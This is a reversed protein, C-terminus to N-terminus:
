KSEDTLNGQIVIDAAAGSNMIAGVHNTRVTNDRVTGGVGEAVLIGYQTNSLCENQEAKPKFGAGYLTIGNGASGKIKNGTISISIGNSGTAMIGDLKCDQITNNHFESGAAPMSIQIGSQECGSINCDSVKAMAGEQIAIGLLNGKISVQMATLSVGEGAAAIGAEANAECLTGGLVSASAADKISIGSLKNEALVCKSFSPFTGTHRVEVGNEGNKRCETGEMAGSAGREFVVGNLANNRITCQLVQAKSPGTIELGNGLGAQITCNDLTLSSSMLHVVPASDQNGVETGTHAFVIGSITGGKCNSATLVAGSSGDTQIIVKGPVAARLTIGSKFKLQEEYTGEPITITDGEKAADIQAQLTTAKAPPTPPVPEVPPPTPPMPGAVPGSPGPTPTPPAPDPDSGKQTPGPPAPPPPTPTAPTSPNVTVEKGVLRKLYPTNEWAWWGGGALVAVTLVSAILIGSGGSKGEQPAAPMPPPMPTVSSGMRINGAGIKKSPLEMETLGAGHRVYTQTPGAHHPHHASSPNYSTPHDNPAGASGPVAPMPPIDPQTLPALGLRQRIAQASAPRNEAEKELCALITQEWEVPIPEANELGFEVRRDTLSTVPDNQLQSIINGSYFPPKGTLLEYVTSGFAYLDDTVHPKKGDAQQPSMYALTGTSNGMGMTARNLADSISRAIGFDTVRLNGERDIMLNAPKLDRHIVKAFRHAYDLAELFQVVWMGLQRAEFVKNPQRARLAGLNEGDIFEMSIAAHTEDMLFDYIKVINQHALNLGKRTEEKLEEVAIDDFRVMEPAFKLAVERGLREDTALWVVGMGGRGLLRELKFRDFVRDGKQHGRLTNGFDIDDLNIPKKPDSM